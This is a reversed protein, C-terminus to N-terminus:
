SRPLFTWVLFPVIAFIEIEMSITIEGNQLIAPYVTTKSLGKEGERIVSAPFSKVIAEEEIV